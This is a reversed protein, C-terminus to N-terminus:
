RSLWICDILQRHLFMGRRTGMMSLARVSSYCPCFVDADFFSNIRSLKCRTKAKFVVERRLLMLCTIRLGLVTGRGKIWSIYKSRLNVAKTIHFVTDILSRRTDQRLGASRSM